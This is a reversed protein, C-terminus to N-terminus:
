ALRKSHGPLPRLHRESSQEETGKIFCGNVMGVGARGEEGEPCELNQHFLDSQPIRDIRKAPERNM